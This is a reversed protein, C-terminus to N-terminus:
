NEPLGHRQELEIVYEWSPYQGEEPDWCDPCVPVWPNSFWKDCMFCIRLEQKWRWPEPKGCWAVRMDHSKGVLYWGHYYLWGHEGVRYAPLQM